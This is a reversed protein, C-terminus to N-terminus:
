QKGKGKKDTSCYQVEYNYQDVATDVTIRINNFFDVSWQVVRDSDEKHIRLFDSLVYASLPFAFDGWVGLRGLEQVRDLLEDTAQQIQNRLKRVAEINFGLHLFKRMRAHDPDDKFLVFMELYPALCSRRSTSSSVSPSGRTSLKPRTIVGFSIKHSGVKSEELGRKM